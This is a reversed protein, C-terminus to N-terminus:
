QINEPLIVVIQAHINPERHSKCSEAGTYFTNQAVKAIQQQISVTIQEQIIPERALNDSLDRKVRDLQHVLDKNENELSHLQDNQVAQLQKVNHLETQLSEAEQSKHELDQKLTEKEAQINDLQRRVKKNETIKTGIQVSFYDM